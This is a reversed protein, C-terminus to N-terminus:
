RLLTSSEDADQAGVFVLHSISPCRYLTQLLTEAFEGAYSSNRFCLTWAGAKQLDYKEVVRSVVKGERRFTFYRRQPMALARIEYSEEPRFKGGLPLIERQLLLSPYYWDLMSSARTPLPVLRNCNPENIVMPDADLSEAHSNIWSTIGSFVLSKKMVESGQSKFSFNNSIANMLPPVHDTIAKKAAMGISAATPTSPPAETSSCSLFTKLVSPTSFNDSTGIHTAPSGSVLADCSSDLSDASVSMNAMDDEEELSFNAAALMDVYESVVKNRQEEFCDPSELEVFIRKLMQLEVSNHRQHQSKRLSPSSSSSADSVGRGLGREISLRPPPPSLSASEMSSVTTARSTQRVHNPPPILPPEVDVGMAVGRVGGVWMKYVAKKIEERVMSLMVLGREMYFWDSLLSVDNGVREVDCRGQDFGLAVLIQDVLLNCSANKVFSLQESRTTTLLSPLLFEIIYVKLPEIRALELVGTLARIKSNPNTDVGPRLMTIFTMLLPKEYRGRLETVNAALFSAKALARSASEQLASFEGSNKLINSTLSILADVTKSDRIRECLESLLPYDIGNLSMLDGLTCLADKLDRIEDARGGEADRGADNPNVLQLMSGKSKSQVFDTFVEIVGCRLLPARSGNSLETILTLATRGKSRTFPNESTAVNVLKALGSEQESNKHALRELVEKSGRSSLVAEAATAAEVLRAMDKNEQIIQEVVDRGGRGRLLFCLTNLAYGAEDDQLNDLAINALDNVSEYCSTPSVKSLEFVAHVLKSPNGSSVDGAVRLKEILLPLLSLDRVKVEVFGRLNEEVTAIALICDLLAREVQGESPQLLPCIAELAQCQILLPLAQPIQCVKLLVKIREASPPSTSALSISLMVLSRLVDESSFYALTNTSSKKKNSSLMPSVCQSLPSMLLSRSLNSNAISVGAKNVKVMRGVLTALNDVARHVSDLALNQAENFIRWLEREAEPGMNTVEDYSGLSQTIRCLSVFLSEEPQIKSGSAGRPQNDFSRLLTELGGSKVLAANIDTLNMQQVMDNLNSLAKSRESSAVKTNM